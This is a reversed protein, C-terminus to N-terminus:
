GLSKNFRGFRAATLGVGVIAATETRLTYDALRVPLCKAKIAAEEEHEEFGGEPGVLIIVDTGYAYQLVEWFPRAPNRESLIYRNTQNITGSIFTDFEIPEEISPLRMRGSQSVASIIITEWRNKKTEPRRTTRRTILPIFRNVGLEAGHRLIEQFPGPRVCGFALTIDLNSHESEDKSIVIEGQLEAGSSKLRVVRVHDGDFVEVHDGTQLRLVHTVYHAAKAPFTLGDSSFNESTVYVRPIKLRSREPFRM